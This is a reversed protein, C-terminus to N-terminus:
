REIDVSKDKSQSINEKSSKDRTNNKIDEVSSQIGEKEEGMEKLKEKEVEKLVENLLELDGKDYALAINKDDIKIASYTLDKEKAIKEFKALNEKSIMLSNLNGLDNVKVMSEFNNSSLLMQERAAKNQYMLIMVEKLISSGDRTLDAILKAMTLAFESGTDTM